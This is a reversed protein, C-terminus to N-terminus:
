SGSAAAVEGIRPVVKEWGGSLSKYSAIRVLVAGHDLVDLGLQLVRCGALRLPERPASCDTSSRQRV